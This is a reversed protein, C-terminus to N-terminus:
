LLHENSHPIDHMNELMGNKSPTNKESPLQFAMFFPNSPMAPITEKLCDSLDMPGYILKWPCFPRPFSM